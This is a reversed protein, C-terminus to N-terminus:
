ECDYCGCEERGTCYRSYGRVPSALGAGSVARRRAPAAPAAPAAASPACVAHRTPQGKSWEIKEGPTVPRSCSSCRGPFKATITM